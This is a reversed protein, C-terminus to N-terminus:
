GHGGHTAPEMGAPGSQVGPSASHALQPYAASFGDVAKRLNMVEALLAVVDAKSQEFRRAKGLSGPYGWSSRWRVKELEAASM